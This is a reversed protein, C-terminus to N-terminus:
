TNTGCEPCVGSENGTLDYSCVQCHGSPVSRYRWFVFITWVVTGLYLPWLPLSVRQRALILSTYGVYYYQKPSTRTRPGWATCDWWCESVSIWSGTWFGTPTLTFDSPPSIRNIYNASRPWTNVIREFGVWLCGNTLTLRLRPRSHVAIFVISLQWIVFMLVSASVSLIKLTRGRGFQGRLLISLGVATLIVLSGLLCCLIIAEPRPRLELGDVTVLLATPGLVVFAVIAAKRIM